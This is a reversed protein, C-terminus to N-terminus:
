IWFHSRIGRSRLRGMLRLADDVTRNFHSQKWGFEVGVDFRFHYEFWLEDVLAALSADEAIAEVISLETPSHDIDLKLVVFDDPAAMGRLWRLVSTQNAQLAPEMDVKVNYFSVKMRREPRLTAWWAQPEHFEREWAFVRDFRICRREYWSFWFPLSARGRVYISQCMRERTLDNRARHKAVCAEYRAHRGEPPGGTGVDFLISRAYPPANCRNTPILHSTTNVAVPHLHSPLRRCGVRALPHRAMGTLPELYYQTPANADNCRIASIAQQEEGERPAVVGANPRSAYKLWGDVSLQLQAANLNCIRNHASSAFWERELASPAYATSTCPPSLSMNDRDQQRTRTRPTLTEGPVKQMRM